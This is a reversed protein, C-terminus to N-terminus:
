MSFRRNQRSCIDCPLFHTWIEKALRETVTTYNGTSNSRGTSGKELHTLLGVLRVLLFCLLCYTNECTQIWRICLRSFIGSWASLRVSSFYTSVNLIHNFSDFSEWLNHCTAVTSSFPACVVAHFTLALSLFICRRNLAFRVCLSILAICFLLCFCCPKGRRLDGIYCCRNLPRCEACFVPWLFNGSGLVYCAYGCRFFHMQLVYRLNTSNFLQFRFNM